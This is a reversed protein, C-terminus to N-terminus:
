SFLDALPQGCRWGRIYQLHLFCSFVVGNSPWLPTHGRWFQVQVFHTAVLSLFSLILVYIFFLLASWLSWFFVMVGIIAPGVMTTLSWCISILPSSTLTLSWTILPRGRGGIWVDNPFRIILKLWFEFLVENEPTWQRTKM